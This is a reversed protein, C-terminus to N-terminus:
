EGNPIAFLKMMGFPSSLDIQEQKKQGYKGDFVVDKGYKAKIAEVFQERHEVADILGAAKAKEATYPGEDIWKRAQDESAGRGTAILKVTSDYISDYLWNHMEDAQPSPGTRMFLEAASKYAGCTLFEPQVGIKDLM